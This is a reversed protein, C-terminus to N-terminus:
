ETVVRSSVGVGEGKPESVTPTPAGAFCWQRVFANYLSDHALPASKQQGPPTSPGVPSSSRSSPSSSLPSDKRSPPSDKRALTTSAMLSQFAMYPAESTPSQPRQSPSPPATVFESPSPSGSSLADLSATPLGPMLLAAQNPLGNRLADVADRVVRAEDDAQKTPVKIEIAEAPAAVKVPIEDAPQKPADDLTDARPRGSSQEKSVGEVQLLPVLPPAPQLKPMPVVLEAGPSVPAAKPTEVVLKEDVLKGKELVPSTPPTEDAAKKDFVDDEDEESATSTSPSISHASAALPLLALRPGQLPEDKAPQEDQKTQEEKKASAQSSGWPWHLDMGRSAIKPSPSAIVGVGAVPTSLKSAM